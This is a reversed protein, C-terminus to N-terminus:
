NLLAIESLICMCRVLVVAKSAASNTASVLVPQQPSLDRSALKRSDIWEKIPPLNSVGGERLSLIQMKLICIIRNVPM